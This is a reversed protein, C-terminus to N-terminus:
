GSGGVYRPIVMGCAGDCCPEYVVRPPDAPRPTSYTRSYTRTVPPPASRAVPTVTGRASIEVATRGRARANALAAAKVNATYNNHAKRVLEYLKYLENIAAANGNIAEKYEEFKTMSEAQRRLLTAREEAAIGLSRDHRKGLEVILTELRDLQSQLKKQDDHLTFIDVSRVVPSPQPLRIAPRDASFSIAPMILLLFLFLGKTPM